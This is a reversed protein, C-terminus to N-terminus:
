HRLPTIKHGFTNRSFIGFFLFCMWCVCNKLTHITKHTHASMLRVVAAAVAATAGALLKMWKQNTTKKKRSSQTNKFIKNSIKYSNKKNNKNSAFLFIALHVMNIRKKLAIKMCVKHTTKERARTWQTHAMEFQCQETNIKREKVMEHIGNRQRYYCPLFVCM